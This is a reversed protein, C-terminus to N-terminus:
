GLCGLGFGFQLGGVLINRVGLCGLVLGFQLGRVLINRVGLCCFWIRIREGFCLCM